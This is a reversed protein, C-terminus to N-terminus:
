LARGLKFVGAEGARLTWVREPIETGAATRYSEVRLVGGGGVDELVEGRAVSGDSFEIEYEDADRDPRLEVGAFLHSYGVEIRGPAGTDEAM